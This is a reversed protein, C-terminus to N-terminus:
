DVLVPFESVRLITAGYPILPLEEMPMESKVPSQPPPAAANHEIVWEPLRRGKVQGVIPSGDPTFPSAGMPRKRFQISAEPCPGGLALAYNWNGLPYVEWDAHPAEGKVQKWFDEVPMSFVLPGRIIAASNNFRREVRPKMPLNLFINTTGKWEREIRHFEGPQAAQNMYGSVVTAGEAWTPIRLLLPFTGEAKVTIHIREEFPYETSVAVHVPIGNVQTDIQCPAYSIAALGGEPAAMWLHSAYKPWGQHMNATCCGYNPELGFLNADPGNDVYIRDESIRCLVQNAQQVYQHAWMDKKFTAPLANFALSELRDGLTALGFTAILQELSFMSEVVTCLETGQSPNKGALHEDCTFIGTVQGHFQDLPHWISLAAQRDAENGTLRFTVAPQKLGMGHNVGHTELTKIEKTIKDKYKLNIFHRTWDFGQCQVKAALQLLTPDQTKDYLWFIVLNLDMWRYYGWVFLHTEDLFQGLRRLHNQMVPIVREDGTAEQYQAMAKLLPFTPWPDYKAPEAKRKGMEWNPGLWGDEYPHTLIFDMWKVVKAKLDADDLLYALPVLGDLWYPAREWGEKDGGIWGSNQIDPWFEDLHGSLGDAQLRLQRTLWGDPHISGLPLPNFACPTLKTPMSASMIQPGSCGKISQAAVDSPVQAAAMSAVIVFLTMSILFRVPTMGEGKPLGFISLRSEIPPIIVNNKKASSPTEALAM